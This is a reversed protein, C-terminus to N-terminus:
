SQTVVASLSGRDNSDSTAGSALRLYAYHTGAAVPVAIALTSLTQHVNLTVAPWLRMDGALAGDIYVEVVLATGGVTVYATCSATGRLVGAKCTFSTGSTPTAAATGWPGALNLAVGGPASDSGMKRIRRDLEVEVQERRRMWQEVGTM